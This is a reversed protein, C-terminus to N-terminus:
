ALIVNTAVKFSHKTSLYEGTKRYKILNKILDVWGVVKGGDEAGKEWGKEIMIVWSLPTVSHRFVIM